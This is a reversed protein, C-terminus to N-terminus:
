QKKSSVYKRGYYYGAIIAVGSLLSGVGRGLLLGLVSTVLVVVIIIGFIKLDSSSFNMKPLFKTVNEYQFTYNSSTFLKKRLKDLFKDMVDTLPSTSLQAIFGSLNAKTVNNEQFVQFKIQMGGWGWVSPVVGAIEKSSGNNNETLEQAGLEKLSAVGDQYVQEPNVQDFKFTETIQPM